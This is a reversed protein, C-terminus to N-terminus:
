GSCVMAGGAWRIGYCCIHLMNRRRSSSFKFHTNVLKNSNQIAISLYCTTALFGSSAEARFIGDQIRGPNTSFAASSFDFPSEPQNVQIRSCNAGGKGCAWDIGAQLEEDPTHNLA